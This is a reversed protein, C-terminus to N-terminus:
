AALAFFAASLRPKKTHPNKEVPKVPKRRKILYRRWPNITSDTVTAGVEATPLRTLTM